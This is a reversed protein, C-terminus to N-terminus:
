TKEVRGSIMEALRKGIGGTLPGCLRARLRERGAADLTPDALYANVAALLEDADRVMRLGGTSMLEKGHDSGYWRLVSTDYPLPVPGDFGISVIPKDFISVDLSLTSITNIVVDSHYLTNIFRNTFEESYDWSDKFSPSPHFFTDVFVGPVGIFRTFRDIEGKYAFHPRIFLQAPSVYRNDRLFDTLIQAIAPDGPVGKGETAFLIIKKNPDLGVSACFAERTQLRSPDLYMDFQPIGVIEVEREAYGQLRLAQEKMFENWLLLKETKIRFCSNSLNDWSKPMSWVPVHERRAAKALAAESDSTVNLSLIFSPSKERIFQRLERVFKQQTLRDDLFRIMTKLGRIKSLPKFVVIAVAYKLWYFRSRPVINPIGLRLFLLVSDSLLLYKELTVIAREGFGWPYEDLQVFEVNPHSFAQLFTPDHAAPTLIVIHFKERLIRYFDNLLFNRTIMGRSVTLFITKM